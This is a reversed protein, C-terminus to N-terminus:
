PAHSGPLNRRGVYRSRAIWADLESRRVLVRRGVKYHPLARNPQNTIATELIRKSLSSYAAAVALSMFPDLPVSVELREVTAGRLQVRQRMGESGYNRVAM